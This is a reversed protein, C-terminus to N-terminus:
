LPPSAMRAPQWRRRNFTTSGSRPRRTRRWDRPNSLVFGYTQSQLVTIEYYDAATTQATSDSGLQRDITVTKQLELPYLVGIPQPNQSDTVAQSSWLTPNGPTGRQPGNVSFHVLYDGTVPDNGVLQNGAFDALGNPGSLHLTYNGNPLVDIMLFTAQNTTPDFSQLRPFYNTGDDAQLFVAPIQSTFTHQYAAFALPQLNVPEDFQVTFMTPPNTLQEGETLQTAVVHPPTSSPDVRLNLVYPGSSFGGSGSYPIQPDYTNSQSTVALYYDGETVSAYIVPDSFLPVTFNSASTTNGSGDNSAVLQLTGSTDLRYLQMSPFLPSGIRDAFVEGGFAYNGAGSVQFHYFDVDAPNFPTPDTSDDGIAGTAQIL